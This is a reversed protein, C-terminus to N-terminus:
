VKEVIKCARHTNPRKSQWLKLYYLLPSELVSAMQVPCTSPTTRHTHKGLDRLHDQLDPDQLRHDFFDPRCHGETLEIPDPHFRNEIEWTQKLIGM